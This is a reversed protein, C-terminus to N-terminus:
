EIDLIQSFLHCYFIDILYKNTRFQSINTMINAM